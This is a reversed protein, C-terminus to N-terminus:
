AIVCGQPLLEIEEFAGSEGMQTMIIDSGFFLSSLFKSNFFVSLRRLFLFEPPMHTCHNRHYANASILSCTTSGKARLYRGISLLNHIYVHILDHTANHLLAPENRIGRSGSGQEQKGKNRTVLM